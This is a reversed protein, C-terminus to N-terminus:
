CLREALVLLCSTACCRPSKCLWQGIAIGNQSRGASRSALGITGGCLHRCSVMGGLCMRWKAQIRPQARIVESKEVPLIGLRKNDGRFPNAHAFRATFKLSAQPTTLDDVRERFVALRIAVTIQM